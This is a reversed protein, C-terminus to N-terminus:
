PPYRERHGTVPRDGGKLGFLSLRMQIFGYFRGGSEAARRGRAEESKDLSNLTSWIAKGEQSRERWSERDRSERASCPCAVHYTSM